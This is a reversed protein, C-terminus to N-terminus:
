GAQAAAVQLETFVRKDSIRTQKRERLLVTFSGGTVLDADNGIVQVVYPASGKEEVWFSQIRLDKKAGVMEDKQKMLVKINRTGPLMAVEAPTYNESM